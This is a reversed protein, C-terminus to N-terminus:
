TVKNLNKVIYSRLKQQNLTKIHVFRLPEGSRFFYSEYIEREDNSMMVNRILNFINFIISNITFLEHIRTCSYWAGDFTPLYARNGIQFSVSTVIIPVQFPARSWVFTVNLVVVDCVDIGSFYNVM